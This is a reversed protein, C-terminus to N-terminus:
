PETLTSTEPVPEPDELPHTLDVVIEEYAGFGMDELKKKFEPDSDSWARLQTAFDVITLPSPRPFAARCVRERLAPPLSESVEDVDVLLQATLDLYREAIRLQRQTAEETRKQNRAQRELNDIREDRRARQEVLQRIEWAKNQADRLMQHIVRTKETDSAQALEGDKRAIDEELQKVKLRLEEIMSQKEYLEAKLKTVEDTM